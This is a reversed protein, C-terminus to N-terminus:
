QQEPRGNMSAQEAFSFGIEGNDGTFADLVKDDLLQAALTDLFVHAGEAEVQEDGDQPEPALEVGLAATDGELGQVSFRLGAEDDFDSDDVITRIMTAATETVALM